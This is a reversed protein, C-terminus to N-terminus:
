QRLPYQQPPNGRPPRPGWMAPPPRFHPRQVPAQGQGYSLQLMTGEHGYMDEHYGEDYGAGQHFLPPATRYDAKGFKKKGVSLYKEDILFRKVTSGEMTQTSHNYCPCANARHGPRACRGCPAPYEEKVDAFLTKWDHASIPAGTAVTTACQSRMERFWFTFEPDDKQEALADLCALSSGLCHM